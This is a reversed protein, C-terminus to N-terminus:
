PQRPAAAPAREERKGAQAASKERARPSSLNPQEPEGLAVDLTDGVIQSAMRIMGYVNTVATDHLAHIGKVPSALEPIRELAEFTRKATETHVREIALSGNEVADLALDKLGRWREKTSM